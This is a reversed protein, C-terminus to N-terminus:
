SVHVDYGIAKALFQLPRSYTEIIEKAWKKDELAWDLHTHFNAYAREFDWTHDTCHLKEPDLKKLLGRIAVVSEMKGYTASISALPEVPIDMTFSRAFFSAFSAFDSGGALLEYCSVIHWAFPM